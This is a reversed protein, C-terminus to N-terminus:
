VGPIGQMRIRFSEFEKVIEGTKLYRNVEGKKRAGALQVSIRM